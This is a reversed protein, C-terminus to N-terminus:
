NALRSRSAIKDERYKPDLFAAGRAKFALSELIIANTNATLANNVIGDDYVGSYYGHRQDYLESVEAQAATLFELDFVANAAFAAKTSLRQCQDQIKDSASKCIWNGVNSSVINYLFWPERDISDESFLYLKATEESKVQHAAIMAAAQRPISDPYSSLEILTLLFPEINMFDPERTDRLLPIGNVLTKTTNDAIMVSPLDIGWLSFALGAYEEYGFRGEQNRNVHGSILLERHLEGDSISRTLTWKSVIEEVLPAFKEHHDRIAALWILARGIDLTSYGSGKDDVLNRLNTMMGSRTDYERNPLAGDYLPIDRITHLLTTLHTEFTIDNILSLEHACFIAALSSGLDWITTYPYDHVSNFLGTNSQRNATFYQWARAAIKREEKTLAVKTGLTIKRSIAPLEGGIGESLSVAPSELSAATVPTTPSPRPKEVTEKADTTILLLEDDNEINSRNPLDESNTTKSIRTLTSREDANPNSFGRVFAANETEPEIPANEGIKNRSQDNVSESNLDIDAAARPFYSRAVTIPEDASEERVTLNPKPGAYDSVFMLTNLSQLVLATKTTSSLSVGETNFSTSVQFNVEEIRLLLLKKYQAWTIGSELFLNIATSWSRYARADDAKEFSITQLVYLLGLQAKTTDKSDEFEETQQVWYDAGIAWRDTQAFIVGDRLAETYKKSMDEASAATSMLVSMFFSIIMSVPAKM